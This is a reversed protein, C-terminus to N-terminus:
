RNVVADLANLKKLYANEMKLRKNEDILAKETAKDLGTTPRKSQRTTGKPMKTGKKRGRNEKLLAARGEKDYVSKWRFVTYPSLIGFKAATERISLGNAYM